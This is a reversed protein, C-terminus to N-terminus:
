LFEGDVYFWRGAERVFRSREHLRSASGGGVRFRAIFEVEGADDGAVSSGVVKLGLWKAEPDLRVSEEGESPRVSKVWEIYERPHALAIADEVDARLPAEERKLGSFLEHGLVKDIARMRDPREPHGEGTDHDVFCPHTLLLTTM